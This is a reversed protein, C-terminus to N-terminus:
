CDGEFVYQGLCIEWVIRLCIRMNRLTNGWFIDVCHVTSPFADGDVTAMTQRVQFPVSVDNELILNYRIAGRAGAGGDGRTRMRHEEELLSNRVSQCRDDEINWGREVCFQNSIRQVEENEFVNIVLLTTSQFIEVQTFLSFFNLSDNQDILCYNVFVWVIMKEILITM